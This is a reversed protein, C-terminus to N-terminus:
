MRIQKLKSLQKMMLGLLPNFGHCKLINYDEISKLALNRLNRNSMGGAQMRVTVEKLFVPSFDSRLMMRLLFDYDGSIRYSSSYDGLKKMYDRRIFVTPHPPMWGFKLQRVDFNSSKWDRVINGSIGVYELNSYVVNAGSSDFAEKILSLTNSHKFTDDSHLLGIFDGSCERIGKNLADYLGDDKQSFLVDPKIGSNEVLTCTNDSSAGDIIIHEVSVQKQERISKLCRLITAESNYSATIISFTKRV